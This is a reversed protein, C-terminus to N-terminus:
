LSKETKWKYKWLMMTLLFTYKEGPIPDSGKRLKKILFVPHKHDPDQHHIQPEEKDM